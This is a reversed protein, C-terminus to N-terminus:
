RLGRILHTLVEAVWKAEPLITERDKPTVFSERSSQAEKVQVPLFVTKSEKSKLLAIKRKWKYYMTQSLKQEECYSSIGGPYIEAAKHHQSWYEIKVESVRAM